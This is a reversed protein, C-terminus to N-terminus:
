SERVEPLSQNGSEVVLAGDQCTITTLNTHASLCNKLLMGDVDVIIADQEVSLWGEGKAAEAIFKLIASKFVSGPIGMAKFSALTATVKGERIGLKWHTEFKVNVFLPYVGRLYVGDPAVRITIDEIPQDEPIHRAALENLDKESISARLVHIEM